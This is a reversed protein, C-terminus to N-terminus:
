MGVQSKAWAIDDPGAESDNLIQEALANHQPTKGGKYGTLTGKQEFYDGMAQKSEKGGKLEAIIRDLRNINEEPSLRDNYANNFIREGEKETFQAGLTSKLTSQVAGRIREKVAVAEPNTFARIFDPMAGRIPGTLEGGKDKLEQRAQELTGIGKEATPLGTTNFDVYEKGFAVDAAKRGPTMSLNQGGPGAQGPVAMKLKALDATQQLQKNKFAMEQSFEDKKQAAEQQKMMAAAKAAKAQKFADVGTGLAEGVGQWARYDSM